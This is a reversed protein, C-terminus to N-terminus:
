LLLFFLCYCLFYTPRVCHSSCHIFTKISTNLSYSTHHTKKKVSVEYCHTFCQIQKVQFIYVYKTWKTSLTYTHNKKKKKQGRYKGVMRLELLCKSKASHSYWTKKPWIHVVTSEYTSQNQKFWQKSKMQVM